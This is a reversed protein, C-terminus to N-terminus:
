SVLSILSYATIINEFLSEKNIESLRKVNNNMRGITDRSATCCFWMGRKVNTVVPCSCSFLFRLGGFSHATM